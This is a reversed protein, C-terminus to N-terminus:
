KKRLRLKMLKKKKKISSHHDENDIELKEEIDEANIPKKEEIDQDKININQDKEM